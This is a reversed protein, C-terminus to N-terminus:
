EMDVFNFYDEVIKHIIDHSNASINCLLDENWTMDEFSCYCAIYCHILEHMLTQRKQEECLVNWLYITQSEYDCVGFFKGVSDLEVEEIKCLEEQSVEKIEWTRDNMKFKM